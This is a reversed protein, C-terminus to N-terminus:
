TKGRFGRWGVIAAHGSGQAYLEGARDVVDGGATVSALRDIQIVIVADGEQRHECLAHLAEIRLHQGVTQHAVVVVQHQVRAPAVQRSQHPLQVTHVGLGVVAAM